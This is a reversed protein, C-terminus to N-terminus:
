FPPDAEFIVPAGSIPHYLCLKQAHLCLPEDSGVGQADGYIDDGVIPTGLVQATHVRLQHTRGTWPRMELRTVPRGKRYEWQLITFTTRSPKPAERWFKHSTKMAEEPKGTPESRPQAVRMFPPNDPDRELAVDIEGDLPFPAHNSQRVHNDHINNDDRGIEGMPRRGDLRLHGEVLCQYTKQVGWGSHRSFAQHLNSLAELSLAYVLIGSTDMDLRHAVTQDVDVTPRMVDWVLSAVSPNRRPGPVSLVGGPKHVVCIHEDCYLIQLVHNPQLELSARFETRIKNLLHSPDIDTNNGMGAKQERYQELQNKSSVSLNFQSAHDMVYDLSPIKEQVHRALHESCYDDSSGHVQTKAHYKQLPLISAQQSLRWSETNRFSVKLDNPRFPLSPFASPCLLLNQQTSNDAAIAKHTDM